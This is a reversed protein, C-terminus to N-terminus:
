PQVQGVVQPVFAPFVGLLVCLDRAGARGLCVPQREGREDYAEATTPTSATPAPLDKVDLRLRASYRRNEYVDRKIPM